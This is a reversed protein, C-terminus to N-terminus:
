VIVKNEVTLLITTGAEESITKVKVALSSMTDLDARSRTTELRVTSKIMERTEMSKM